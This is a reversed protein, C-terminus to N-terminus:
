SVKCPIFPHIRVTTGLHGIITTEMKKDIGENGALWLYTLEGGMQGRPHRLLVSQSDPQRNAFFMRHTTSM